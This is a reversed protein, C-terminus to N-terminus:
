LKNKAKQAATRQDSRQMANKKLEDILSPVEERSVNKLIPKQCSGYASGMNCTTSTFNKKGAGYGTTDIVTTKIKGPGVRENGRWLEGNSLAMYEGSKTTDSQQPTPTPSLPYDRGTSKKQTAM